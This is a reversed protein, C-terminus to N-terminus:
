RRASRLRTEIRTLIPEMRDMDDEADLILGAAVQRKVRILLTSAEDFDGAAYRRAGREDFATMRAEIARAREDETEFLEGFQGGGPPPWSKQLLACGSLALAAALLAAVRLSGSLPRRIPRLRM